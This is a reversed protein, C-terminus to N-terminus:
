FANFYGLALIDKVHLQGLWEQIQRLDRYSLKELYNFYLAQLIGTHEFHFQSTRVPLLPM